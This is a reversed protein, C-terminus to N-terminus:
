VAILILVSSVSECLPMDEKNMEAGHNWVEERQMTLNLPWHGFVVFFSSLDSWVAFMRSVCLSSATENPWSSDLGFCFLCSCNTRIKACVPIHTPQETKVM